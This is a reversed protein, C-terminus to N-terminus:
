ITKYSEWYLMPLAGVCNPFQRNGEAECFVIGVFQFRQFYGPFLRLLQERIQAVGLILRSFRGELFQAVEVRPQRQFNAVHQLVQRLALVPLAHRCKQNPELVQVTAGFFQLM